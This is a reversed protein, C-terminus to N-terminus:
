MGRQERLLTDNRTNFIRTVVHPLYPVELLVFRRINLCKMPIQFYKFNLFFYTFKASYVVSTVLYVHSRRCLDHAHLGCIYTEIAYNKICLEPIDLTAIFLKIWVLNWMKPLALVSVTVYKTSSVQLKRPHQYVHYKRSM